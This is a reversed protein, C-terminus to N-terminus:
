RGAHRSFELAWVSKVVSLPAIVLVTRAESNVILDVVVKSKGTGMGMALMAAPKDHAFWYAQLQHRWAKTKTCPIAPLAGSDGARILDQATGGLLREAAPNVALVSGDASRYVVGQTMTAFLLRHQAESEIRQAGSAARQLASYIAEPLLALLEPLDSCPATDGRGVCGFGVVGIAEDDDVISLILLSNIGREELISREDAVSRPLAALPLVVGEGSRVSDLSLLASLQAPTASAGQIERASEAHWELTARGGPYADPAASGFQVFGVDAGIFRAVKGLALEVALRAELPDRRMIDRSVESLLGRFRAKRALQEAKADLALTRDLVLAQLETRMRALELFVSVKGLLIAPDLPKVLYDVAGSEYGRFRHAEDVHAASLFIIPVRSTSPNGLLLEALEYGDMGPMQVDLIAIAFDHHLSLALAEDGSNAKLVRAPVDKLIRELAFLNNPKDDVILIAASPAGPWDTSM